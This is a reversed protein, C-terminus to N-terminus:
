GLFNGYVDQNTLASADRLLQEMTFYERGYDAKKVAMDMCEFRLKSTLELLASFLSSSPSKESLASRGLLYAQQYEGARIHERVQQPVDTM